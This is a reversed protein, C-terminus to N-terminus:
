IIVIAALIEKYNDKIYESIAPLVTDMIINNSQFIEDSFAVGEKYLGELVEGIVKSVIGKIFATKIKDRLNDGEVRDIERELRRGSRQRIIQRNEVLSRKVLEEYSDKTRHTEGHPIDDRVENIIEDAKRDSIIEINEDSVILNISEDIVNEIAEKENVEEEDEEENVEEQVRGGDTMIIPDTSSVSKKQPDESTDKGSLYTMAPEVKWMLAEFAEGKQDEGKVTKHLIFETLQEEIFKDDSSNKISPYKKELDEKASRYENILYRRVEHRDMNNDDLLLYVYASGMKQYSVPGLNLEERFYKEGEAILKYKKEGSLESESSAEIGAGSM